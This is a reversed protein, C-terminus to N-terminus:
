IGVFRHCPSNNDRAIDVPSIIARTDNILHTGTKDNCSPHNSIFVTKRTM